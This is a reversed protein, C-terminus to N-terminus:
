KAPLNAKLADLWNLVLSVHTVVPRPPAPLPRKAYFTRGDPSVDYSRVGMAGGIRYERPDFSFLRQLTKIGPPPGPSVEAAMMTQKGSSDIPGVYFLERGDARWAPSDGGDISVRIPAGPGPYPRLYVESRGTVDSGYALWRGDPSFTPSRGQLVSEPWSEVRATDGELTVIFIHGNVGPDTAALHRGDPTISSPVLRRKLLFQPSSSTGDTRLAAIGTWGDKVWRVLLRDRASWIPWLSEGDLTLPVRRQGLDYLWLGVRSRTIMTLALSRGDPSLRGGDWSGAETPLPTVHGKRDIKVFQADQYSSVAGPVYALSGNSAVAFQGAGTLDNPESSTLAQAVGGVVAHEEGHRELREPDFAVAFLVGQRMFVLHGSAVYRGDVANTALVKRTGDRLNQAVVEEDGWSWVRKRTTYLLVRGGPLLSPLKHARENERPTTVPAISGDASIRRIPGGVEGFYVSGAADWALGSPAEILTALTIAPGGGLPVSKIARNAYFAVRDGDPSIAPATAGETEPLPRAEVSTLRRAFLQQVGNRRGVFVLTQGDPTWTLATHSGGPTPLFDISEGATTLEDAPGVELSLRMPPSPEPAPRLLWMAAAGVITGFLVGAAAMRVGRISPRHRAGADAPATVGSTAKVRRLESAIDHATDPRDDPHKALCQRVLHDLPPPTLPQLSSPPPPDHELIAVVLGAQSDSQFPRRSTLMEYLVAGFSFLDSRADAEKGQLQEPAMYPITGLIMGVSSTPEPTDPASATMSTPALRNASLKALGFDLLKPGSKTLMVNGPKLDRHVVGQRHAASLADAIAIAMGLAQDLPLPGKKLREALTEGALHEMVLFMRGDHEGVDFLPCIHPHSLAAVTQAERAFRARLAPEGEVAPPLVKIAVTRALRTDRARYVQGMGGAGIFDDIEYPGLRTGATFRPAAPSWAPKQLFGNTSSQQALVAEVAARLDPDDRCAQDLFVAREAAPRMLAAESLRLVGGSSDNM